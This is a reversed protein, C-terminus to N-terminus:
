LDNIYERTQSVADDMSHATDSKILKISYYFNIVGNSPYWVVRISEDGNEFFEIRDTYVNKFINEDVMVDLEVVDSV